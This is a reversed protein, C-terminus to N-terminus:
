TKLYMESLFIWIFIAPKIATPNIRRNQSSSSYYAKAVNLTLTALAKEWQV